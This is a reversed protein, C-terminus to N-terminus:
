CAKYVCLPSIPVKLSGIKITIELKIADCEKRRHQRYANGKKKYSSKVLLCCHQKLAASIIHREKQGCREIDYFQAKNNLNVTIHM